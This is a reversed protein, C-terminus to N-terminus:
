KMYIQMKGNDLIMLDDSETVKFSGNLNRILRFEYEMVENPTCLKRTTLINSFEIHDSDRWTYDASYNNCGGVGHVSHQSSDFIMTSVEDISILEENTLKDLKDPINSPNPLATNDKQSDLDNLASNDQSNIESDNNMNDQNEVSDEVSIDKLGDSKLVQPSVYEKGDIVIREIKWDTKQMRGQFISWFSCGTFFIVVCVYLFQKM